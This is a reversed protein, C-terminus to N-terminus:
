RRVRSVVCPMSAERVVSVDGDGVMGCVVEGVVVEVVLGGLDCGLDVVGGSGREEM